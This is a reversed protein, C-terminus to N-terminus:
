KIEYEVHFQAPKSGVASVYIYLSKYAPIDTVIFSSAGARTTGATITGTLVDTSTSVGWPDGYDAYYFDLTWNSGGSQTIATVTTLKIEYPTQITAIRDGADATSSIQVDFWKKTRVPEFTSTSTMVTGDPCKFGGSTSEIVGAVTLSSTGVSAVGIAMKASTSVIVDTLFENYSKTTGGHIMYAHQVTGASNKTAFRLNRCIGTGFQQVSILFDDTNGCPSGASIELWELNDYDAIADNYCINLGAKNRRTPSGRPTIFLAGMENDISSTLHLIPSTGTFQAAKLAGGYPFTITSVIVEANVTLDGNMTDGATSVFAEYTKGSLAEANDVVGDNDTDYEIKFMDGGVFEGGAGGGTLQVGRLDQYYSGDPFTQLTWTNTPSGTCKVIVRCILFGVEHYVSPVTYNSIGYVDAIADSKKNYETSNDAPLNIMLHCYKSLV